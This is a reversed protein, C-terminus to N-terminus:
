SDLGTAQVSFFGDIVERNDMYDSMTFGFAFDDFDMAWNGAKMDALSVGHKRAALWIMTAIARFSSRDSDPLLEEFDCWDRLNLEELVLSLGNTLLITETKRIADTATM